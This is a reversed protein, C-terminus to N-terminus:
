YINRSSSMHLTSQTQASVTIDCKNSCMSWHHFSVSSLRPKLNCVCTQKKVQAQTHELQQCPSQVCVSVNSIVATSKCEYIVHNEEQWNVSQSCIHTHIWKLFMWRDAPLGLLASPHIWFSQTFVYINGQLVVSVLFRGVTFLNVCSFNFNPFQSNKIQM